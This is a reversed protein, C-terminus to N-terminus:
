SRRKAAWNLLPVIMERLETGEHTLSYEVRPPIEAFAQRSILQEDELRKLREALVTPSIGSLKEQLESYRLCSHNGILGIIQLTWKKGIITIVGELPCLCVDSDKNGKCGERDDTAM